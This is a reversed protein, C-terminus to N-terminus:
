ADSPALLPTKSLLQCQPPAIEEFVTDRDSGAQTRGYASIDVTGGGADVMVVGDGRQVATM